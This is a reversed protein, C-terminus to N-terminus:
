SALTLNLRVQFYYKTNIPVASVFPTKYASTSGVFLTKYTHVTDAFFFLTVRKFSRPKHRPYKLCHDLNTDTRANIRLTSFTINEQGTGKAQGTSFIINGQGGCLCLISFPQM